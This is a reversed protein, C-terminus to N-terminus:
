SSYLCWSTLTSGHLATASVEQHARIIDFLKEAAQPQNSLHLSVALNCQICIFCSPNQKGSAEMQKLKKRCLAEATEYQQLKVLAIVWNNFSAITLSSWPGHEQLQKQYAERFRDGAVQYDDETCCAYAARRPTKNFPVVPLDRRAVSSAMGVMDDPTHVLPMTPIDNRLQLSTRHAM